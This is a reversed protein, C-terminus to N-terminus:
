QRMLANLEAGIGTNRFAGAKTVSPFTNLACAKTLKDSKVTKGNCVAKAKESLQPFDSLEYVTRTVQLEQKALSPSVFAVLAVTAVMIKLM